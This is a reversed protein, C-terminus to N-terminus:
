KLVMSYVFYGIAILAIALVLWIWSPLGQAEEVEEKTVTNVYDYTATFGAPTGKPVSGVEGYIGFKAMQKQLLALSSATWMKNFAVKQGNGLSLWEDNEKFVANGNAFWGSKGDLQEQTIAQEIEGPTYFIDSIGADPCVEQKPFTARLKALTTNPHMKLYANMMGLATRNQSKGIVKARTITRM